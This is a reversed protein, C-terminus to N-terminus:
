PVKNQAVNQKSKLNNSLVNRLIPECVDNAVGKEFSSACGKAFGKAVGGAFGKAFLFKASGRAFTNVM